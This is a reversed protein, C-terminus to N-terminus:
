RFPNVFEGRNLFYIHELSLKHVTFSCLDYVNKEMLVLPFTLLEAVFLEVINKSNRLSIIVNEKNNWYYKRLKPV